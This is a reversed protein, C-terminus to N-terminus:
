ARAKVMAMNCSMVCLSGEVAFGHVDCRRPAARANCGIPLLYCFIKGIPKSAAAYHIGLPLRQHEKMAGLTLASEIDEGGRGAARLAWAVLQGVQCLAFGAVVANERHRHKNAHSVGENEM